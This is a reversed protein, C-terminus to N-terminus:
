EWAMENRRITRWLGVLWPGKWLVYSMILEPFLLVTFLRAKWGLRWIYTLSQVLAIPVWIATLWWCVPNGLAISVIFGFFLVIGVGEQLNEFIPRLTWKHLGYKRLEALTGGLWRLHQVWLERVTRKPEGTVWESCRKTKWGRRVFERGLNFDEILSGENWPMPGLQDLAQRRVAVAKGDLVHPRLGRGRELHSFYEFGLRQHLNLLGPEEWVQAMAGVAAIERNEALERIAVEVFKPSLIVDGDTQVIIDGDGDIFALAQNLAGAKRGTNDFTAIVEAGAALAEEGTNDTCKDAAVVIRDPRRTQEQLTRVTRAINEGENHAPILAVVKM